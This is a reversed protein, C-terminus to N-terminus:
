RKLLGDWLLAGTWATLMWAQSATAISAFRMRDAMSGTEERTTRITPIVLALLILAPGSVLLVMRHWSLWRDSLAPALLCALVMLWAAVCAARREGHRVPFTRKGGRRDAEVDPLATVLGGAFFILCMPLLLTWPFGALSGSQLYFALLPLLVGCSLAQHLDGTGRYSSRIPALSYTWGAGAALAFLLLMWPRDFSAVALSVLGMGALAVVAGHRLQRGSLRGEPIVRSGGSLWTGRTDRDIAEDAVDNLYLIYIQCLAGFLHIVAFWGWEFRGTVVLAVAQGWLLPLAIMGHAPVRAARVFSGLVTRDLGM